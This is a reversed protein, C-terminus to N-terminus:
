EGKIINLLDSALQWIIGNADDLENEDTYAELAINIDRIVKDPNFCLINKINEDLIIDKDEVLVKALNFALLEPVITQIGSNLIKHILDDICLLEKDLDTTAVLLDTTEKVLENMINLVRFDREEEFNVITIVTRKDPTENDIFNNLSLNNLTSILTLVKYVKIEEVTLPKVGYIGKRM